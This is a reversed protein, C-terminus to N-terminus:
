DKLNKILYQEIIESPKEALLTEPDCYWQDLEEAAYNWSECLNLEDSVIFQELDSKRLTQTVKCGGYYYVINYHNSMETVDEIEILDTM